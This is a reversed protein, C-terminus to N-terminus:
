IVTVIACTVDRVFGELEKEPWLATGKSSRFQLSKRNGYERMDERCPGHVSFVNRNNRLASCVSFM